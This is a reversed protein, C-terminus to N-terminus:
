EPLPAPAPQPEVLLAPLPVSTGAWWRAADARSAHTSAPPSASGFIASKWVTSGAPRRSVPRDSSRSTNAIILRRAAAAPSGGEVHQWVNRAVQRVSPRELARLLDRSVCRRLRRLQVVPRRVRHRHVLDLTDHNSRIRRRQRHRRRAQPWEATLVRLCERRGGRGRRGRISGSTQRGVDVLEGRGDDAPDAGGADLGDLEGRGRGGGADPRRGGAPGSGGGGAAADLGVCLRGPAAM